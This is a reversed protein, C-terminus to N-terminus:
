PSSIHAPHEPWLCCHIWLGLPVGVVPDWMRNGGGDEPGSAGDGPDSGKM